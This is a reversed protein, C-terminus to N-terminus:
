KNARTNRNIRLARCGDITREYCLFFNLGVIMCFGLLRDVRTVHNCSPRVTKCAVWMGVISIIPKVYIRYNVNTRHVMFSSMIM